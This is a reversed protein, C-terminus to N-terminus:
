LEKTARDVDVWVMNIARLAEIRVFSKMAGGSFFEQPSLDPSRPPWAVPGGHWDVKLRSELLDMKQRTRIYQFSHKLIRNGGQQIYEGLCGFLMETSKAMSSTSM